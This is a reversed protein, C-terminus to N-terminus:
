NAIKLIQLQSFEETYGVNLDKGSSQYFQFVYSDGANCRILANGLFGGRITNSTPIDYCMVYSTTSSVKNVILSRIGHSDGEFALGARFYYLGPDLITLIGNNYQSFRDQIMQTFITLTQFSGSTISQVQDRVCQYFIENGNSFSNPSTQTLNWMNIIKSFILEYTNFGDKLQFINEDNIQCNQGILDCPNTNLSGSTNTLIIRSGDNAPKLTLSFSNLSTDINFNMNETLTTSADVMSSPFNNGTTQIVSFISQFNDVTTM